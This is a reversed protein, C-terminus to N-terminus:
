VDILKLFPLQECFLLLPFIRSIVVTSMLASYSLRATSMVCSCKRMIVTKYSPVCTELYKSGKGKPIKTIFNVHCYRANWFLFPGGVGVSLQYRPKQQSRPQM